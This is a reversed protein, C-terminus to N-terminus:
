RRVLRHARQRREDRGRVRRAPRPGREPTPRRRRGRGPRAPDVRRQHQGPPRTHHRHTGAAIRPTADRSRHHPHQGPPARVPAIDDVTVGARALTRSASDVTSRVARRFVERGDMRVFGGLDAQLLHRGSGDNDLDSALLHGPGDVAEVLVAGAGDAFLVATARDDWDVITSMTDAGIVLVREAGTAVFGAAAVLAYVFGSCVANVDMAGGRIGLADQVTAATAPMVQDPTCTAVLVLDVTSPDVGARALAARGAEVALASTPGGIHRERIGTRETIWSDSTDLTAELDANTVTKAPLAAGWGRIRMGRM